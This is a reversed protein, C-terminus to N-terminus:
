GGGDLASDIAYDVQAPTVANSDYKAFVHWVGPVSGTMHMPNGVYGSQFVISVVDVGKVSQMANATVLAYFDSIAQRVMVSDM